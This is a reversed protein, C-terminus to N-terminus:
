ITRYKQLVPKIKVCYLEPPTPLLGMFKLISELDTNLDYVKARRGISKEFKHQAHTSVSTTFFYSKTKIQCIEKIVVCTGENINTVLRIFVGKGPRTYAALTSLFRVAEVDIFFM